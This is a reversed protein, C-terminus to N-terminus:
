LPDCIGDNLLLHVGSDEKFDVCCHVWLHVPKFGLVSDNNHNDLKSAEQILYGHLWLSSSKKKKEKILFCKPHQSHSSKYLTGKEEKEVSDNIKGITQFM